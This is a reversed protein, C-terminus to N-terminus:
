SSIRLLYRHKFHNNVDFFKQILYVSISLYLSFPFVGAHLWIDFFSLFDIVHQDRHIYDRFHFTLFHVM